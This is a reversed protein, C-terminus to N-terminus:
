ATKGYDVALWREPSMRVAIQAGIDSADAYQKGQTDGLYRQAMALLQEYSSAEIDVVPGEVSVYSYPLTEQQAVLSIRGGVKLLNGKKSAAAVIFLVEGGPSYDYWLPTTLPGSGEENIALVGIHLDSLFREKESQSMRTM